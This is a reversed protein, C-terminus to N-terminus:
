EDFAAQFRSMGIWRLGWRGCRMGILFIGLILRAARHLIRIGRLRKLRIVRRLRLCCVRWRRMNSRRLRSLIAAKWSLASPFGNCRERGRFASVGAHYAMEDCSVFQVVEGTRAVFFHSSVRLATLLSFFPHEAAQIRNTFLKQVAGTGYEFPPLSINHLVVLSVTEGDPRPCCNPSHMQAAGQWRGQQWVDQWADNMMLGAFLFLIIVAGGGCAM